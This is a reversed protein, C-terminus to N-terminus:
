KFGEAPEVTPQLSEQEDWGDIATIPVVVSRCNHVILGDAVYSEDDLVAINWVYDTCIDDAISIIAAGRWVPSRQHVEPIFGGDLLEDSFLMEPLSHGQPRDLPLKADSLCQQGRPTLSMSDRDAGFFLGCRDGIARRFGNGLSAADLVPGKALLPGVGGQTHTLAVRPMGVLAGDDIALGQGHPVLRGSVLPRHDRREVGNSDLVTELVDDAPVYGVESENIAFDQKFKVSLSMLTSATDSMIEYSVLEQDFLSPFNKPDSVPVDQLGLPQEISEFLVDGVKLQDARKWGTTTLVPHEDTVCLIRGTAVKIALSRPKDAKKRMVAYVPRYRGRHTLVMDGAIMSEIPIQGRETKVLTGEVVSNFHNPPRYKDWNPSNARWVAGDLHRCIETTSSDLVAAYRLAVVFEGLDPSTFEAYRAENLAEFTNTRVLTNLYPAVSDVSDLWLADLAANVAEDTEVGRVAERLTLGREVLRDWISTRVEAVPRGFKVGNQLEQQIIKKVADSTDGAMRFSQTEFYAVADDLLSKFKISRSVFREGKAREVENIAMSSGLKWSQDLLDKCTRKLKGRDGDNIDFAAIDSPDEDLLQAVNADDGLARKVARAIQAALQNVSAAAYSDTRQEIVSFNVRLTARNFVHRPVGNLPEHPVAGSTEGSSTPSCTPSPTTRSAPATFTALAKEIRDLQTASQKARAEATAEMQKQQIAMDEKRHQEEIPNVLPESDEDREPMELLSRLYREDQETPIVAKAGLLEKWTTLVWKIHEMSAPKFCFRPYESDGWNQDGLDRFLQENLCEELRASDANLTWFFAEFQTQSQSYSGTQGTHSLGLLNPVLLAKAIALDFYVLAKEFQDTTTPFHVEMTVGPPLIVSAMGKFNKLTEKLTEFDPTGSKLNSDAARSAVPIGGGFKELHILWLKVLQDKAYWSRHAARLDSRGYVLDWKPKHVYHIIRDLDINVERLNTGKQVIRNVIGYEDTFFEFSTPDRTLMMNIGVFATGAVDITGYVKETISFGMERGSSVGDIADTFSGRMKAVVANFVDIRRQQEKESLKTQGFKFDWGRALIASLKFETVAKVQEDKLMESYIKLGRRSVLDDPNYRQQNLFQWLNSVDFTTVTDPAQEDYPTQLPIVKGNAM